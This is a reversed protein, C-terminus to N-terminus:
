RVAERKAARRMREIRCCEAREARIPEYYDRWWDRVDRRIREMDAATIISDAM